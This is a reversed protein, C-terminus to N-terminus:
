KKKNEYTLYKLDVIYIPRDDGFVCPRCGALSDGEKAIYWRGCKICKCKIGREVEEALKDVCRKCGIISGCKTPTFKIGCELCMTM